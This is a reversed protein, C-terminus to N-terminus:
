LSLDVSDNGFNNDELYNIAAGYLTGFAESMKKHPERDSTTEELWGVLWDLYELPIDKFVKSKHDGFPM